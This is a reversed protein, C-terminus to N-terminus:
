TLMTRRLPAASWPGVDRQGVTAGVRSSPTLRGSIVDTSIEVGHASATQGWHSSRLRLAPPLDDLPVHRALGTVSVSWRPTNGACPEDAQFAVVNGDTAMSMTSGSWTVLLIRQDDVAFTVPLIIPLSRSSIAIRGNEVSGLLTM